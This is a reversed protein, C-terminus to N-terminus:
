CLFRSEVETSSVAEEVPDIRGAKIAEAKTVGKKSPPLRTPKVV